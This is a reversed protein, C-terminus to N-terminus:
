VGTLTSPAKRQEDGGVAVELKSLWRVGRHELGSKSFALTRLQYKPRAWNRRKLTCKKLVNRKTSLDHTLQSNMLFYQKRAALRQCITGIRISRLIKKKLYYYEKMNSIVHITIIPEITIQGDLEKA